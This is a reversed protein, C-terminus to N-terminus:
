LTKGLVALIVVGAALSLTAMRQIKGPSGLKDSLNNKKYVIKANAINYSYVTNDTGIDRSRVNGELHMLNKEGNVEVTREGEIRYLDNGLKETITATIKGTLKDNQQTGASGDHSNAMDSTAGFLPLFKTLNGSVGGNASVSSKSTNNIKSEQAANATEAVIVMVVDGVQHAKIDSYLSTYTQPNPQAALLMPILYLPIIKRM